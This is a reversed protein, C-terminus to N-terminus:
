CFLRQLLNFLMITQNKFKSLLRFWSVAVQDAPNTNAWLRIIARNFAEAKGQNEIWINKVREPAINMYGEAISEMNDASIAAALRVIQNNSLQQSHNTAM